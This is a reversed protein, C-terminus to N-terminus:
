KGSMSKALKVDRSPGPLLMELPAMIWTELYLRGTGTVVNSDDRAPLNLKAISSCGINDSALRALLNTITADIDEAREAILKATASGTPDSWAFDLDCESGASALLDCINESCWKRFDMGSFQSIFHNYILDAATTVTVHGDLVTTGNWTLVLRRTLRSRDDIM